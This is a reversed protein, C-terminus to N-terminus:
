KIPNQERLLELLSVPKNIDNNLANEAFALAKVVSRDHATEQKHCELIRSTLRLADHIHQLQYNYITHEEM